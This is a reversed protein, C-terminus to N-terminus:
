KKIGGELTDLIDLYMFLVVIGSGSQTERPFGNKRILQFTSSFRNVQLTIENCMYTEPQKFICFTKMRDEKTKPTVHM